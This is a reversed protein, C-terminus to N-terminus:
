QDHDTHQRGSAKDPAIMISAVRRPVLIPLMMILIVVVILFVM